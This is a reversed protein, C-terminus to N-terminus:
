LIESRNPSSVEVATQEGGSSLGSDPAKDRSSMAAISLSDELSM